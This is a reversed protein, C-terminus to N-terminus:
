KYILESFFYNKYELQLLFRFIIESLGKNYQFINGRWIDYVFEHKELKEKLSKLIDYVM